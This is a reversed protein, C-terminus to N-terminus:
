SERIAGLWERITHTADELTLREDWYMPALAAYAEAVLPARLECTLTLCEDTPEIRRRLHRDQMLQERLASPTTGQLPFDAVRQIIRAADEYHRVFSAAAFVEPERAYRRSIADLKEWLTVMPHLCRVETPANWTFGGALGRRELAEHIESSMAQVLCPELATRGRENFALELLIYPKLGPGAHQLAPARAAGYDVKVKVNRYAAEAEPLIELTLGIVYALREVYLEWFAKRQRTSQDLETRWSGVRPLDTWGPPTAVVLDIDESFRATLRYGKSLSTGGKFVFPLGAAQLRWLVHTIWYDKEVMGANRIRAAADGAVDDVFRPFDEREHPLPHRSM